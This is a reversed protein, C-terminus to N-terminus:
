AASKRDAPSRLTFQALNVRLLFLTDVVEFDMAPTGM